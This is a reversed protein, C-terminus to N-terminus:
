LQWDSFYTKAISAYTKVWTHQGHGAEIERNVVRLDERIVSEVADIGMWTNMAEAISTGTSLTQHWVTGSKSFVTSGTPAPFVCTTVDPSGLSTQAIWGHM